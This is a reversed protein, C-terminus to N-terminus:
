QMQGHYTNETSDRDKEKQEQKANRAYMTVAKTINHCRGNLSVSIAYKIHM